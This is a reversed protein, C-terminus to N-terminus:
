EAVRKIRKILDGVETGEYSLLMPNVKAQFEALEDTSPYYVQVGEAKALELAEITKEKWLERQFQSSEDAAQQVWTQVEPTLANWVKKSMMLMDPIRTHADMSFYGCVEYHRNSWYSPPNNEAGDVVGQQLATYLEGWAIPTPSAGLAEIMDMATKSNMVRIKLGVLDAPTKVPRDTTYFNRSGGDYYCLGRLQKEESALLLERGIEGDLVNWFHEPGNFLYPLSFVAMTPVFGEMPSASTKTMALAGNQLQEICQTESGLMGSPYIELKVKGGSIEALREQMHLMGTHVPHSPDLGHALKLVLVSRASAGGAKNQYRVFGAFLITAVLVGCLMGAYFGSGVRNVSIM